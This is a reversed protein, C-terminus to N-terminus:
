FLARWNDVHCIKPFMLEKVVQQRITDTGIPEAAADVAVVVVVVIVFFGCFIHL